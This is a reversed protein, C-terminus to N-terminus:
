KTTSPSPLFFLSSLSRYLALSNIPLTSCDLYTMLLLLNVRLSVYGSAPVVGLLAVGISLYCLIRLLQVMKESSVVRQWGEEYEVMILEPRSEVKIEYDFM